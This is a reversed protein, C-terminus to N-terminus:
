IRQVYSSLRKLSNGCKKYESLNEALEARLEEIVDVKEGVSSLLNFYEWDLRLPNVRKPNEAWSTVFDKLEQRNRFDWAVVPIGNRSKVLITGDSNVHYM